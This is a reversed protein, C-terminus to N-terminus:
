AAARLAPEGAPRLMGFRIGAVVTGAVLAVLATAAFAARWASPVGDVLSMITVLNLSAHVVVAPFLAGTRLVAYGLVVGLSLFPVWGFADHMQVVHGPLLAFVLGSGFLAVVGPVVGWDEPNRWNRGLLAAAGAGIVILAALRYVLEEDLAGLVLGLVEGVSGSSTVYAVSGVVLVAGSVALFERWALLNVRDLGLRRWGVMAALLLGFPLAPSTPVPGLHGVSLDQWASVVDVVIVGVAVAVISPTLPWRTWRRWVWVRGM